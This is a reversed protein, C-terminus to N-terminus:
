FLLIVMKIYNIANIHIAKHELHLVTLKTTFMLIICKFNKTMKVKVCMRAM